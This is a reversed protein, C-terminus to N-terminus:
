HSDLTMVRNTGSSQLIQKAKEIEKENVQVAIVKEGMRVGQTYPTIENEYEAIGSILGLFGGIFGGILVGLPIIIFSTKYSFNLLNCDCWAAVLAFGTYIVGILIAGWVAYTAIISYKEHNLLKEVERDLTIVQIDNEAFGANYLLNLERKTKQENSILGIITPM